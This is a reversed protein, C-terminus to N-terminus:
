GEEVRVEGYLHPSKDRRHEEIWAVTTEWDADMEDEDLSLAYAEDEPAHKDPKLLILTRSRDFEGKRKACLQQFAHFFAEGRGHLDLWVNIPTADWTLSLRIRSSAPVKGANMDGIELRGINSASGAFRRRNEPIPDQHRSSPIPAESHVGANRPITGSTEARKAGSGKLRRENQLIQQPLPHNPWDNSEQAGREAFFSITEKVKAQMEANSIGEIANAPDFARGVYDRVAPPWEVKKPKSSAPAPTQLTQARTNENQTSTLLSRHSPLKPKANTHQHSDFDLEDFEVDDEWVEKTPDEEPVNDGDEEGSDSKMASKVDPIPEAIEGHQDVWAGTDAFIRSANVDLRSFSHSSGAVYPNFITEPDAPTNSEPIYEFRTDLIPSQSADTDSANPEVPSSHASTTVRRDVQPFHHVQELDENFHVAKSYTPTSPVSTADVRVDVDPESRPNGDPGAPHKSATETPAADTTQERPSTAIGEFRVADASTDEGPDKRLDHLLDFCTELLQLLSSQGRPIDDGVMFKGNRRLNDISNLKMSYPYLERPSSVGGSAKVDMLCKRLTLLHNYIPLLAESVMESSDLALSLDLHQRGLDETEELQNVTEKTEDDAQQSKDGGPTEYTSSLDTTENFSQAPNMSTNQRVPASRQQMPLFASTDVGEAKWIGRMISWKKEVAYSQM